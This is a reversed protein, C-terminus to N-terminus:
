WREAPPAPPTTTMLARAYKKEDRPPRCVAFLAGSASTTPNQHQRRPRHADCRANWSLCAFASGAGPNVDKGAHWARELAQVVVREAAVADVLTAYVQAYLSLRHRESFEDHADRDGAAMREVLRIDPTPRRTM